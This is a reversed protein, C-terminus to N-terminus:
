LAIHITRGVNLHSKLKIVQCILFVIFCYLDAEAIALYIEFEVLGLQLHAVCLLVNREEKLLHMLVLPTRDLHTM